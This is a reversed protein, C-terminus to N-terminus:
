PYKEDIKSMKQYNHDVPDLMMLSSSHQSYMSCSSESRRSRHDRRM